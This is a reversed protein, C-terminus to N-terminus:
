LDVAACHDYYDCRGYRNICNARKRPWSNTSKALNILGEVRRLDDLHSQVRFSSPAVFTRHFKPEKQKGLLNMITGRLEGFRKDLGLKQWLAVQGIVEGDNPWGFLFDNDFRGSSKHEIIYTGPPADELERDLYAILDYRCSEGTRPDRLDLEVALPTIQDFKYYLRYANFVRWAEQVYAPNAKAVIRDYVSEPTLVRYPSEAMMGTYYLALFAHILAGIALSEREVFLRPTRGELYKLKWLYDCREFTSFSSWGRGSSIGGLKALQHEDFIEGLVEDVPPFTQVVSTEGDIEIEYPKSPEPESEPEPDDFVVDVNIGWEDTYKVDCDIAEPHQQLDHAIQTLERGCLLCRNRRIIM